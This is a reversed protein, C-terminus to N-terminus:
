TPSKRGLAQMDFVFGVTVDAVGTVPGAAFSVEAKVDDCLGKASFAPDLAMAHDIGREGALKGATYVCEGNV